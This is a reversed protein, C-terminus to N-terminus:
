QKKGKYVIDMYEVKCKTGVPSQSYFGIKMQEPKHYVFDRLLTWIKGDASTFFNFVKGEKTVRLYVDNGAPVFYSDDTIKNKVVSIGLLLKKDATYQLLIKAWNDQDSYVLIAGGDYKNEFAPKVRTSFDFDPDPTFLFKPATNRFYSGNTPNHLDTEKGATMSISNASLVKFEEPKDVLVCPYPIAKVTVTDPLNGFNQAFCTFFSLSLLCLTISSRMSM